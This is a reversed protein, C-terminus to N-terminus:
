RGRIKIKKDSVIIANYDSTTIINKYKTISSIIFKMKDGSFNMFVLEDSQFSNNNIYDVLNYINGIVKEEINDEKQMFMQIEENIKDQNNRFIYKRM